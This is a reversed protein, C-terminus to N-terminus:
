KKKKINEITNIRFISSASVEAYRYEGSHGITPESRRADITNNFLNISIM